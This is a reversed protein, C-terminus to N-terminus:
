KTNLVALMADHIPGNSALVTKQYINLPAGAMDTIRGGAEAICLAGAAMDWPSLSVEWFGDFRGAAVYCLDMAASGLRRVGRAAMLFHVFHEVANGPNETINYPFGTVLLSEVLKSSSSVKLRRGNLFAGAGKEATFMEDQNPDYVVGAILEGRREIGISVSFIPVGHLFNTTGDLPDIIWRYEAPALSGGSEEALISHSPYHRRIISIIREEAGRDIESVLNREDGQKVEINRVKGVSLKLFRGAERAAEIAVNLMPDKGTNM